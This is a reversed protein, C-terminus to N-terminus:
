ESLMDLIVRVGLVALSIIVYFIIIALLFILSEDVTLGVCVCFLLILFSFFVILFIASLITKVIRM